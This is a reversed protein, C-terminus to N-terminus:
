LDVRDARGAPAGLPDSLSAASADGAAFAGACDVATRIRDYLGSFARDLEALAANTLRRLARLGISRRYGRRWTLTSVTAAIASAGMIGIGPVTALLKSLRSGRHWRALRARDAPDQGAYRGAAGRHATPDVSGIGALRSRERSRRLWINSMASVRRRSSALNPWIRVCRMSRWRGCSRAPQAGPADDVAAVFHGREGTGQGESRAPSGFPHRFGNFDSLVFDLRRGGAQSQPCPSDILRVGYSARM